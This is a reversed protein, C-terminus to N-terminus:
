KVKKRMARRSFYFAAFFFGFSLILMHKHQYIVSMFTAFQKQAKAQWKLDVYNQAILEKRMILNDSMQDYIEIVGVCTGPEIPFSKEFWRINTKVDVPESPFYSIELDDELLAKIPASAGKVTKKFIDAGHYFLKQIIKQERFAEEFLSIADQYRIDSVKSGLLVAILRRNGNDAAAVLNYGANSTYGTKVGIAKSYFFPGPKLIRNTQVINYSKQKNTEERTYTITKVLEAFFPNQMAKKTMIALDYATTYHEINHLGHPNTFHTDKCGVKKLYGNMGQVFKNIDHTCHFAIANAADNGSGLMLGYFLTKLSIQEQPQLNITTGDPELTYSPFREPQRRKELMSATKLIQAEVLIPKDLDLRYQDLAYLATAIKTVSAPYRRENAKKDYLIKGTDLNMLVCSEVENSTSFAAFLPLSFFSFFFIKM